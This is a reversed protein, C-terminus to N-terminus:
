ESIFDKVLYFSSLILCLLVKYLVLLSCPVNVYYSAFFIDLFLVFEASRLFINQDKNGTSPGPVRERWIPKININM